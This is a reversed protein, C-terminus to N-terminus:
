PSCLMTYCVIAYTTIKVGTVNCYHELKPIVECISFLFVDKALSFVFYKIGTSHFRREHFMLLHFTFIIGLKAKDRSQKTCIKM